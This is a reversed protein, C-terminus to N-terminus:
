EPDEGNLTIFVGKDAAERRVRAQDLSEQLGALDLELSSVRMVEEDAVIDSVLGKSALTEKRAATKRMLALRDASVKIERRLSAIQVDLEARFTDAYHGKLEARERDLSKIEELFNQLKQVRDRTLDVHIEAETLPQRSLHENEIQVIVGDAGVM